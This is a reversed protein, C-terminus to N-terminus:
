PLCLISYFPYICWQEFRINVPNRGALSCTAGCNRDQNTQKHMVTLFVKWRNRRHRSM